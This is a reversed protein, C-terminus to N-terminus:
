KLFEVVTLLEKKTTTYNLQSKSIIRSLLSISKNNHSIGAGLQKDSADTHFIFPMKCYPYSLMTEAYVM